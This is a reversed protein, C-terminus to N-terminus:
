PRDTFTPRSWVLVAVTVTVALIFTLALYIVDEVTAADM